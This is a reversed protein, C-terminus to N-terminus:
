SYFKTELEEHQKAQREIQKRFSQTKENMTEHTSYSHSSKRKIM